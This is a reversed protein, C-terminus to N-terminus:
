KNLIHGEKRATHTEISMKEDGTIKFNQKFYTYVIPKLFFKSM